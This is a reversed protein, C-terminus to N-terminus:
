EHCPVSLDVHHASSGQEGSSDASATHVRTHRRQSSPGNSRLKEVGFPVSSLFPKSGNGSQESSSLLNENLIPVLDDEFM